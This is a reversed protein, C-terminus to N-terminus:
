CLPHTITLVVADRDAFANPGEFRLTVFLMGPTGSSGQM